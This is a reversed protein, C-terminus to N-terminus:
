SVVKESIKINQLWLDDKITDITHTGAVRLKSFTFHGSQYALADVDGATADIDEYLIRKPVESGDVATDDCLTYKSTATIKGLVDGREYAIGTLLTVNETILDITNDYILEDYDFRGEAM